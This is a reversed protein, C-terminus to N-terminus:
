KGLANGYGLTWLINSSLESLGDTFVRIMQLTHIANEHNLIALAVTPDMSLNWLIGLASRATPKDDCLCLSLLTDLLLPLFCSKDGPLSTLYQLSHLIKEVSFVLGDISTPSESQMLCKAVFMVEDKQLSLHIIDRVEMYNALFALISKSLFRVLVSSCHLLAQFDSNELQFATQMPCM